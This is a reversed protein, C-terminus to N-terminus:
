FYCNKIWKLIPIESGRKVDNITKKNIQSVKKNQKSNKISNSEIGKANTQESQSNRDKSIYRASNQNTIKRLTM